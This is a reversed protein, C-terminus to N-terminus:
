ISLVYYDDHFPDDTVDGVIRFWIIDLVYYESVATVEALTITVGTLSHHHNWHEVLHAHVLLEVLFDPYYNWVTPVICTINLM